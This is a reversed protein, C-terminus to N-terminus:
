EHNKFNLELARLRANANKVGWGAPTRGWIVRELEEDLAELQKGDARGGSAFETALERDEDLPANERV